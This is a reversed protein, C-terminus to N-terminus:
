IVDCGLMVGKGPAASKFSWVRKLPSQWGQVVQRGVREGGVEREGVM